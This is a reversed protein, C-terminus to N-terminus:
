LAVPRGAPRDILEVVPRIEPVGVLAPVETGDMPSDVTLTMPQQGSTAPVHYILRFGGNCCPEVTMTIGKGQADTRLWTGVGFQAHATSAWGVAMLLAVGGIWRKTSVVSRM